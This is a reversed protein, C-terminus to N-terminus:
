ARRLAVRRNRARGEPTANTAKPQSAGRGDTRLREAAIGHRAVLAARVADARRKSLGLNADSGGVSDTHGDVQLTWDKHQKMAVAIEQLARESEPRIQDSGFAFFIGYVEAVENRKLRNELTDPSALPLPFDIRLTASALGARRSRLILLNDEDDLIHMEFDSGGEADSLRGIVHITPLAVPRGNVLVSVPVSGPEVRRLTGSLRRMGTPNAALLNQLPSLDPEKPLGPLRAPGPRSNGAAAAPSERPVIVKVAAAGTDRLEHLVDASLEPTTGDFVEPDGEQFWARMARAHRRDETPVARLIRLMKTGHGSAAPVEASFELRYGHDDVSLVTAIAEYDGRTEIIAHVTSLGAVFPIRPVTEAAGANQLAFPGGLTVVVAIAIAIALRM